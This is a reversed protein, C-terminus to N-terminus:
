NRKVRKLGSTSIINTLGKKELKDLFLNMGLSDSAIHGAVVLNIGNNEAKDIHQNSFHMGVITGIGADALKQIAEKPGESGGTMDVFIKGVKKTEDGVLIQPGMGEKAAEGYEPIGRLFKMLSGIKAPKNKDLCKQLFNSVLNDSTTHLCIFNFGLIKATDVARNHNAPMVRRQVEEKRKNMLVEGINNPVGYKQWIGTQMSMVRHLSALAKGKPHHGILLNIKKGNENLRDALLVESVEIDIGTLVGTIKTNPNGLLIRTDPYPIKLLDKDFYKKEESSLKNYVAKRKKISEDVQKKGRPDAKVGIDIALQYVEKLKM